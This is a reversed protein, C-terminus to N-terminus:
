MVLPNSVSDMIHLVTVFHAISVFMDESKNAIGTWEQIVKWNAQKTWLTSVTDAQKNATTAVGSQM